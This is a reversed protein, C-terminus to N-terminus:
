PELGKTIAMYADIAERITPKDGGSGDPGVVTFHNKSRIGDIKLISCHKQLAMWELLNLRITDKKSEMLGAGDKLSQSIPDNGFGPPLDIPPESM